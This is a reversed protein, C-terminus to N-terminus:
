GKPNHLCLPFISNSHVGCSCSDLLSVTLNLNTWFQTDTPGSCVASLAPATTRLLDCTMPMKQHPDSFLCRNNGKVVNVSQNTYGLRLTNVARYPSGNIHHVTICIIATSGRNQVGFATGNLARSIVYTRHLTVTGGVV